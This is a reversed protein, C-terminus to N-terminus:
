GVNLHVQCFFLFLSFQPLQSDGNGGKCKFTSSVLLSVFLLYSHIEMVEGVNLHIRCLFLFLGFQPLQIETGKDVNLHVQCLFLFLGFQPLQSDGNDGRCKFTSSM